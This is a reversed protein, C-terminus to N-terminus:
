CCFCEIVSCMALLLLRGYFSITPSLDPHIRVVLKRLFIGPARVLESSVSRYFCEIVSVDGAAAVWRLYKKYILADGAAAYGLRIFL